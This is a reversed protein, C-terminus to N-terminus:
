TGEDGQNTKSRFAINENPSKQGLASNPNTYIIHTVRVLTM